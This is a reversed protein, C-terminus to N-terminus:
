FQLGGERAGDALAKVRGHYLYGGRDFVVSSVGAAKAKEALIKGVSAAQEVKNIKADVGSERSSAAVITHGQVDDIVQAYIAKNSRYISLRPREATGKIAKRIRSRIKTRRVIKQDQM